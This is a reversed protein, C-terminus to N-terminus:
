QVQLEIMKRRQEESYPLLYISRTMGFIGLTLVDTDTVLGFKNKAPM